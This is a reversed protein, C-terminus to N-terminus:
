ETIYIIASYNDEKDEEKSDEKPREKSDAM